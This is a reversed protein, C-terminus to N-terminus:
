STSRARERFLDRKRTWASLDLVVKWPEDVVVSDATHLLQRYARDSGLGFQTFTIREALPDILWYFPIRAAAYEKLKDNRDSLRSSRSIVEVVLPVDAPLVPSTGSGEARLLVVDPRLEVKRNLRIAQEVNVM